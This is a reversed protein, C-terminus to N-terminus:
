NKLYHPLEKLGYSVGSDVMVIKNNKIEVKMKHIDRAKKAIKRLQAREAAVERPYDQVFFAGLYKKAKSVNEKRTVSRKQGKM